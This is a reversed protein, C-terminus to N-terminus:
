AVLTAIERRLGVALDALRRPDNALSWLTGVETAGFCASIRFRGADDPSIAVAWGDSLPFVFRDGDVYACGQGLARGVVRLAAVTQRDLPKTATMSIVQHHEM